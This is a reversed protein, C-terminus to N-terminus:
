LLLRCVLNLHSQLESTHEESRRTGCGGPGPAARRGRPTAHHRPEPLHPVRSRCPAPPLRLSTADYPPCLRGAGVRGEGAQPPPYTPAAGAERSKAWATLPCAAVAHAFACSLSYLHCPVACCNENQRNTM